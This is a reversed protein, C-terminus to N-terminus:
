KKFFLSNRSAIAFEYEAGSGIQVPSSRNIANNLGLEGQNNRGWGYLSGDSKQAIAHYAGSVRVWDTAAGIQVPSSRNIAFGDGVRGLSGEGWAWLTGDTKVAYCNNEGVGLQAWDSLAGIQVPSSKNTVSDNTGGLGAFPGGWTWITGDTKLAFGNAAANLGVTAWNTLAGVQV